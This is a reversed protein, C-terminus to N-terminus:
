FNALHKDHSLYPRTYFVVKEKVIAHPALIEGTDSKIDIGKAYDRSHWFHFFFDGYRTCFGHSPQGSNGFPPKEPFWGNPFDVVTPIIPAIYKDNFQGRQMLLRTIKFGPDNGEDALFDLKNEEWFQRKFAMFSPHLVFPIAGNQVRHKFHAVVAVVLKEELQKLVIREWNKCLFLTDIDCIVIIENDTLSILRQISDGHSIPCPIRGALGNFAKVFPYHGVIKDFRKSEEILSFNKMVYYDFPSNTNQLLSNLHPEFYASSDFYASFIGIRPRIPRYRRTFRVIRARIPLCM